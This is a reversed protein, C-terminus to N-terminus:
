MKDKRVNTKSNDKIESFNPSEKILAKETSNTMLLKHVVSKSIKKKNGSKDYYNSNEAIKRISWSPNAIKLDLVRKITQKSLGKRGWKNGKYSITIGKKKRVANKVRDSKKSSEEEALWGMMQLMFDFMMENFPEPMNNLNEFFGQRFSHIKCGYLKCFKFFVILKKRNRYLRDVDWVYLDSFVKKKILSKLENFRVRNSDDKWASKKDEFLTADYKDIMSNIDKLQNEPNQDDSSVRIYIAKDKVSSKEIM